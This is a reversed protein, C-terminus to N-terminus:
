LAGDSQLEGTHFAESGARVRVRLYARHLHKCDQNRLHRGRWFEFCQRQQVGVTEEGDFFHRPNEADRARPDVFARPTACRVAYRAKPQSLVPSKPLGIHTSPNLTLADPTPRISSTCLISAASPFSPRVSPFPNTM